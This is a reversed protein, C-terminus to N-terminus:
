AALGYAPTEVMPADFVEDNANIHKIRKVDTMQRASRLNLLEGHRLWMM